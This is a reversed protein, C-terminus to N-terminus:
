FKEPLPQKLEMIMRYKRARKPLNLINMSNRYKSVTRRSLNIGVSNLLYVIQDDTYPSSRPEHDILSKIYEKACHNSLFDEAEGAIGKPMLSKIDFIGRPTAVIKNAVARHVTSEHLLLLSAITKANIPKLYNHNGVFFDYQHRSIEGVIKLLTSNRYNVAKVLLKASSMKERIYERDNRSIKKRLLEESLEKDVSVQLTAADNIFFEYKGATKEEIMVDPIKYLSADCCSDYDNDFNICCIESIITHLKGNDLRCRKKAASLGNELILNLNQVFMKCDEDYKGKAEFITKIKDQINFSFLGYPSMTQLKKIIQLLDFYSINKERSINILVEGSLYRNELAYDMLLFAIERQDETFHLFSM